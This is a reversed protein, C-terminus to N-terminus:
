FFQGPFSDLFSTVGHGFGEGQSGRQGPEGAHPGGPLLGQVLQAQLGHSVQQGPEGPLVLVAGDPVLDGGQRQLLRHAEGGQRRLGESGAVDALPHVDGLPPDHVAGGRHMDGKEVLGVDAVSDMGPLGVVKVSLEGPVPLPELHGVGMKFLLPCVLEGSADHGDVGEGGPDGAVQHGGELPRCGGARVLDHLGEGVVQPPLVVQGRGGEGITFYM